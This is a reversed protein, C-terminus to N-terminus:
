GCHHATQAFNLATRDNPESHVTSRVYANCHVTFQKEIYVSIYV